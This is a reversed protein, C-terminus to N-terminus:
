SGESFKSDNLSSCDTFALLGLVMSSYFFLMFMLYDGLALTAPLCVRFGSYILLITEYGLLLKDWNCLIDELCITSDSTILGSSYSSSSTLSWFSRRAWFLYYYNISYCSASCFFVSSSLVCYTYKIFLFDWACSFAVASSFIFGLYIALGPTNLVLSVLAELAFSKRCFYLSKTSFYYNLSSM